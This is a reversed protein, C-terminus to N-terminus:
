GHWGNEWVPKLVPDDREAKRASPVVWWGRGEKRAPPWILGQRAWRRRTKQSPQRSVDPVTWAKLPIRKM